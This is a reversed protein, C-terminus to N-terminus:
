KISWSRRHVLTAGEIQVGAKLATVLAVKNATYTVQVRVFPDPLSAPEVDPDLQVSATSRSTLKHSALEWRTAIPDVKMLAAVLRDQLVEAHHEAVAALERLRQAHAARTSAQARLQDIVWCWADAKAEIAKRNDFESNILGELTATAIAVDAPDDSFLFEAASDIQRQLTLAEGTLDFLTAM